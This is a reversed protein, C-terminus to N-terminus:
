KVEKQERRNRVFENIVGLVYGVFFVIWYGM